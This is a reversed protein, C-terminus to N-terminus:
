MMHGEKWASFWACRRLELHVLLLSHEVGAGLAPLWCQMGGVGKWAGHEGTGSFALLASYMAAVDAGPMEPHQEVVQLVILLCVTSM